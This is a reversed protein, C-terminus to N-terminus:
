VTWVVHGSRSVMERLRALYSSMPSASSIARLYFDLYPDLPAVFKLKQSSTEARRSIQLARSRQTAGFDFSVAVWPARSEPPLLLEFDSPAGHTVSRWERHNPGNAIIWVNASMLM